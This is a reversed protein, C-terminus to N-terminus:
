LLQDINTCENPNVKYYFTKHPTMYQRIIYIPMQRKKLEMKAIDETHIHRTDIWWKKIEEPYHSRFTDIMEKVINVDINTKMSIRNGAGSITVTEENACLNISPPYGAELLRTREAILRSLEHPELLFSTSYKKLDGNVEEGDIQKKSLNEIIDNEESEEGELESDYEEKPDDGEDYEEDDDDDDKFNEEDSM